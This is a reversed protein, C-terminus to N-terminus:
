AATRNKNEAVLFGKQRRDVAMLFAVM